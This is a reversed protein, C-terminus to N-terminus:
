KRETRVIENNIPTSVFTKEYFISYYFSYFVIALINESLFIILIRWYVNIMLKAKLIQIKKQFDFLPFNM